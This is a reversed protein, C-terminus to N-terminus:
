VMEMGFGWDMGGVEWGMEKPFWLNKLTQSYTDTRSLPENYGKKKKLNWMYAIAYSPPTKSDLKM